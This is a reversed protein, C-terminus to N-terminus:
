VASSDAYSSARRAPEDPGGTTAGVRSTTAPVAADCDGRSTGSRCAWGSAPVVAAGAHRGGRDTARSPATAAIPSTATSTAADTRQDRPSPPTRDAVPVGAGDSSATSSADGVGAASGVAVTFRVDPGVVEGAVAAVGVGVAVAVGVSPGVAVRVGRGVARAVFVGFGVAWGVGVGVIVAEGVGVGAAV